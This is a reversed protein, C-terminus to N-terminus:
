TDAEAFYDGSGGMVLVTSVGAARLSAIRRSFPTIPEKDAAVLAAMRVDRMMFNTACTDEDMLLVRCGAELVEQISAAQSTSGSADDSRFAATSSGGPLNNIFFSIDVGEVRRGDEASVKVADPVMVVLERGDGPIKNYVGVELAQLLTSKGHFGGGAILTIGSKIGLGRVRGRHPLHLEVALSDPAAFPVLGPGAPMPLDSVGSQRPLISGDGVFGVLGRGALSRRLVDTDEVTQIHSWIASEDLVPCFLSANVARIVHQTIIQAAFDGMITRAKGPLGVTFRAEVGGSGSVLVATRELVHQGPVDVRVEGGKVGHWGGQRGACEASARNAEVGLRRALWDALAVRRLKSSWLHDPFQAASPQVQVRIRSPAAYPDGQVHDILLLFSGCRWAGQIDKYAKYNKGDLRQLLRRLEQIDGREQISPGDQHNSRGYPEHTEDDLEWQQRAYGHQANGAASSGAAEDLPHESSDSQQRHRVGGGGGGYKQKYYWGRGRGGASNSM